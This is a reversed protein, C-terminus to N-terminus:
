ILSSVVLYHRLSMFSVFLGGFLFLFTKPPHPTTAENKTRHTETENKHGNYTDNPKKLSMHYKCRSSFFSLCRCLCICVVCGGLSM